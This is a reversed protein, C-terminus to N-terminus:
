LKLVPSWTRNSLEPEVGKESAYINEEVQRHWCAGVTLRVETDSERGEIRIERRCEKGQDGAPTETHCREECVM